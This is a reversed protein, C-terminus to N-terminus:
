CLRREVHGGNVQYVRTPQLGEEGSRQQRQTRRRQDGGSAQSALVTSDGDSGDLYWLALSADTSATFLAAPSLFRVFSVPRVHWALSHLPQLRCLAAPWISTM